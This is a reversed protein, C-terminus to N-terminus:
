QKTEQNSKNTQPTFPKQNHKYLNLKVGHLWTSLIVYDITNNKDLYTYSYSCSGTHGLYELKNINLKKSKLDKIVKNHAYEETLGCMNCGLDCVIPAYLFFLVSILFLSLRKKERKWSIYIYYILVIPLVFIYLSLLTVFMAM